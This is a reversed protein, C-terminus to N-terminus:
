LYFRFFFKKLKSTIRGVIAVEREERKPKRRERNPKALLIQLPTFSPALGVVTFLM